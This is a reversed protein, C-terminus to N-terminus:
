TAHPADESLGSQAAAAPLVLLLALACLGASLLIVAAYNENGLIWAGAAPGVALGIKQMATGQVVVQGTRDFRAFVGLLFPHSMNWGFQFLCTVILFLLESPVQPGLLLAPTMGFAAGIALSSRQGLMTGALAPVMAGAIGAFQSVALATAIQGDNLAFHQGILSAYAWFCAQAAFYTAMSLLASWEYRRATRYERSVRGLTDREPEPFRGAMLAGLVAVAAFVLLLAQLGGAALIQPAVALLLAGYTLVATLLIGFGKEPRPMLGIAAFALPVVVGAAIGAVVRAILFADTHVLYGSAAHALGLILLAATVTPRWRIRPAIAVMAITSLAFALMELSLVYGARAADLGAASVLGEVYAPQVVVVQAAAVDALIATALARRGGTGSV